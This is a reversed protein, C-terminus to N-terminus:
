MDRLFENLLGVVVDPDEMVFNHSVNELVVVRADPIATVLAEVARRKSVDDYDRSWRRIAEAPDSPFGRARM